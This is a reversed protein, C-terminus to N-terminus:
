LGQRVDTSFYRSRVMFTGTKTILKGRPLFFNEAQRRCREAHPEAESGQPRSCSPSYILRAPAGQNLQLGM